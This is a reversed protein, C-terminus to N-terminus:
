VIRDSNGGPTASRSGLRPVRLAALYARLTFSIAPSLCFCVVNPWGQDRGALPRGGGPGGTSMVQRHPVGLLVDVAAPPHDKWPGASRVTWRSLARLASMIRVANGVQGEGQVQGKLVTVQHGPSPCHGAGVRPRHGHEPQRRGAPRDGHGALLDEAGGTPTEDLHPVLLVNGAHQALEAQLGRCRHDPQGSPAAGALVSSGLPVGVSSYV